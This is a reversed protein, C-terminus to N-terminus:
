REISPSSWSRKFASTICQFLLRECWGSCTYRSPLTDTVILYKGVPSSANSVQSPSHSRCARLYNKKKVQIWQGGIIVPLWKTTLRSGTPIMRRKIWEWVQSVHQVSSACVRYWLGNLTMVCFIRVSFWSVRFLVGTIYLVYSDRHNSWLCEDEKAERRCSNSISVDRNEIIGLTMLVVSLAVCFSLSM